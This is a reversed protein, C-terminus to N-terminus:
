YLCLKMTFFYVNRRVESGSKEKKKVSLEAGCLGEGGGGGEGGEGDGGRGLAEAVECMPVVKPAFESADM